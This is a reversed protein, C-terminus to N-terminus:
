IGCCQLGLMVTEEIQEPRERSSKQRLLRITFRHKGGSIEPYAGVSRDILVRLLQCSMGAELSQQYFGGIATVAKPVTSERIDSLVTDVASQLIRVDELWTNLDAVREHFDRSLWHYLAPLDFSCSGGPIALRQKIQSLLEDNRIRLTPQCDPAKLRTTQQEIREITKHLLTPDVGPNNSLASIVAAHRELEKIIEGKLDARALMDGIELIGILAQRSGWQSPTALAQRIGVFVHELRLFTRIRENTPQEYAILEPVATPARNPKATRTHEEAMM